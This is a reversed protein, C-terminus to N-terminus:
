LPSYDAQLSLRANLQNPGILEIHTEAKQRTLHM